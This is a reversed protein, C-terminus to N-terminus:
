LLSYDTEMLRNPKTIWPYRNLLYCKWTLYFNKLFRKSIYTFICTFVYLVLECTMIHFTNVSILDFRGCQSKFNYTYVITQHLTRLLSSFLYCGAVERAKVIAIVIYYKQGFFYKVFNNSSYTQDRTSPEIKNCIMPPTWLFSKFAKLMKMLFIHNWM